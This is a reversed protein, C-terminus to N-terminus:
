KDKKELERVRTQLKDLRRLSAVRRNWTRVEDVPFKGAYAGPKNISKSVMGKGLIVVDDCIELHGAVGSMGAFMCRKGIKVSGSIGVCAAMATHDGVEVNHAIHVQNDIRVGNGIVTDGVAGCDITSSAGIEVDDGVRVGGVQPVKLWGDPTMANGFGDSGVVSAPHFICREGAVVKRVLTANALVRCDRGLKCDPGVVAGPGIYVNDGIVANEEVVANAAVHATAAVAASEAVVASAHIGPEYAPPPCVAAAMRAYTAYPDDSVLAAVPCDAADETKLIVAAAKTSPLQKKFAHSALFSLADPGAVSLTGLRAVQVDPDGILECGFRQALDGLSIAV